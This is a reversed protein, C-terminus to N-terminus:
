VPKILKLIASAAKASAHGGASLLKYLASYDSQMQKQKEMDNLILDLEAVLNKETLEDQILEKVVEKGM